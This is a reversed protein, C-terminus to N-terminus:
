QGTTRRESELRQTGKSNITAEWTANGAAEGPILARQRHLYAHTENTQEVEARRESGKRKGMKTKVKGQEGMSVVRECKGM